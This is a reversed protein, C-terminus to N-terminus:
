TNQDPPQSVKGKLNQNGYVGVIMLCISNSEGLHLPGRDIPYVSRSRKRKGIVDNRGTLNSTQNQNPIKRLGLEIRVSSKIAEHIPTNPASSAENWSPM